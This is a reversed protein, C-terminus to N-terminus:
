MWERNKKYITFFPGLNVHIEFIIVLFLIENWNPQDMFVSVLYIVIKKILREKFLEKPSTYLM